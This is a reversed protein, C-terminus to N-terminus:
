LSPAGRQPVGCGQTREDGRQRRRLIADLYVGSASRRHCQSPDQRGAEESGPVESRRLLRPLVYDGGGTGGLLEEVIDEAYIRVESCRPDMDAEHETEEVGLVKAGMETLWEQLAEALRQPDITM